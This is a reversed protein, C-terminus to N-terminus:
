LKFRGSKFSLSILNRRHNPTLFRAFHYKGISTCFHSHAEITKMNRKNSIDWIRITKDDSASLIYKGAPHFIVGRVWNDHGHLTFLCVGSGVDWLQVYWFRFM